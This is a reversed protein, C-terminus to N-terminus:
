SASEKAQFWKGDPGCVTAEIEPPYDKRLVTCSAGRMAMVTPQPEGTVLYKEHSVHEVENHQSACTM